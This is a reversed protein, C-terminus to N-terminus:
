VGPWSNMSLLVTDPLVTVAALAAVPPPNGMGAGLPTSPSSPTPTEGADSLLARALRLHAAGGVNVFAGGLYILGGASDVALTNVTSNASPKWTADLTGGSDVRALGNRAKGDIYAIGFVAYLNDAFVTKHGDPWICLVRDGPKNGPGQQDMPDEAVLIRGDPTQCVVSPVHIAPKELMVEVKWEAPNSPTPYPLKPEDKKEAPKGKPDAARTLQSGAILSSAVLAGALFLRRFRSAAVPNAPIM